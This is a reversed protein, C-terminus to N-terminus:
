SSASILERSVIYPLGSKKANEINKNLGALASYVLYAVLAVGVTAATPISAVGM